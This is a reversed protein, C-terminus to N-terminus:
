VQCGSNYLLENRLRQRAVPRCAVIDDVEVKVKWHGILLVQVMVTDDKEPRLISLALTPAPSPSVSCIGQEHATGASGTAISHLLCTVAKFLLSSLADPFPVQNNTKPFWSGLM